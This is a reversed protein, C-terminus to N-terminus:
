CARLEKEFKKVVSERERIKQMLIEIMRVNKQMVSQRVAQPTVGQERAIETIIGRYPNRNLKKNNSYKNM